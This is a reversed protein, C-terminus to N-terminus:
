EKDFLPHTWEHWLKHVTAPKVFCYFKQGVKVPEELYPDVVGIPKKTKSLSVFSGDSKVVGIKQGPMLVQSAIVPIIPVHIADRDYHQKDELIHGVQAKM